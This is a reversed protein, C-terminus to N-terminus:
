GAARHHVLEGGKSNRQCLNSSGLMYSHEWRPNADCSDRGASLFTGGERDWAQGISEEIQSICLPPSPHDLIVQCFALYLSQTIQPNLLRSPNLLPM